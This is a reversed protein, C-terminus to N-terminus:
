ILALRFRSFPVPLSLTASKRSSALSDGLDMQNNLNFGGQNYESSNPIDDVSFGQIRCYAARYDGNNAM